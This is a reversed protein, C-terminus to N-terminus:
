VLRGSGSDLKDGPNVFVIARGESRFQRLTDFLGEIAQPTLVSTPEDFILIRPDQLLVRVIEVRQREGVGLDAVVRDPEIALGYRTGIEAIRARLNAREAATDLGLAINELVTLSEFLSFHQFVVGIGAARAAAPSPISVPAGAIELAGADPAVLGYVIKVLTSKGAGNEGLLALIEGQRVDLSVDDNALCGPYQKSVGSIRLAPPAASATM